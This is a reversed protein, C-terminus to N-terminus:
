GLPTANAGRTRAGMRLAFEFEMVDCRAGDQWLEITAHYTFPRDPEWLSPDPVVARRSLLPLEDPLRPFPQLPYAVEVTTMGPCRPGVLRGRVETTPTIEEAEIRLGVEAEAASLRRVEATVERLKNM